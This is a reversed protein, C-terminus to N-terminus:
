QIMVVKINFDTIQQDLAEKSKLEELGYVQTIYSTHRAHRAQQKNNDNAPQRRRVDCIPNFLFEIAMLEKSTNQAMTAFVCVCVCVCVCM